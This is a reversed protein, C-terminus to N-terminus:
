PSTLSAALVSFTPFNEIPATSGRFPVRVLQAMSAARVHVIM